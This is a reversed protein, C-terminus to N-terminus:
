AAERLREDCLVEYQRLLDLWFTEWETVDQGDALAAEIRGYGDDLRRRLSERRSDIQELRFGLDDIGTM